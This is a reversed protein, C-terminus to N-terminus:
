HIIRFFLRSRILMEQAALCCPFALQSAVEKDSYHGLLHRQAEQMCLLRLWIRPRPQGQEQSWQELRRLCVGCQRALQGPKCHAQRASASWDTVRDFRDM